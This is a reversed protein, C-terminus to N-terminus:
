SRSGEPAPNQRRFEQYGASKEWTKGGDPWEGNFGEGSSFWGDCWGREYEAEEDPHSSLPYRSFGAFRIARAYTELLERCGNECDDVEGPEHGCEGTQAGEHDLVRVLTEIEDLQEDPLPSLARLREIEERLAVARSQGIRGPSGMAEYTADWEALVRMAQAKWDQAAELANALRMLDSDRGYFDANMQIRAILSKTEDTM